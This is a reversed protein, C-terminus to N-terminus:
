GRWKAQMAKKNEAPNKKKLLKITNSKEKM